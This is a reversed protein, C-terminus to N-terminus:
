RVKWNSGNCWVQEVQSGGGAVNQDWATVSSDTVTRTMGRHAADCPPLASLTVPAENSSNHNACPGTACRNGWFLLGDTSDVYPGGVNNGFTVGAVLVNTGNNRIGYNRNDRIIGGNWTVNSAGSDVFLGNGRNGKAIVNSIAVDHPNVTSEHHIYIAGGSTQGTIITNSITVFGVDAVGDAGYINIGNGGLGATNGLLKSNTVSYNTGEIRIADGDAKGTNGCNFATLNSISVDNAFLYLCQNGSDSVQVNSFNLHSASGFAFIAGDSAVSRDTNTISANSLNLYSTNASINLGARAATDVKLGDLNVDTNTGAVGTIMVGWASDTVSVHRMVLGHSIYAAIGNRPGKGGRGPTFNCDVVRVNSIGSGPAGLKVLPAPAGPGGTLHTGGGLCVITVNDATVELAPAVSAALGAPLRYTGGKSLNITTRITGKLRSGDCIGGSPIDNVCGNMQAGPDAGSFAAADRVSSTQPSAPVSGGEQAPQFRARRASAPLESAVCAPAFASLLAALGFAWARWRPGRRAGGRLIELKLERTGTRTSVSKRM